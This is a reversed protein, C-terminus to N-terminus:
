LGGGGGESSPGAGGTSSGKVSSSEREDRQRKKQARQREREKEQLARQVAATVEDEGDDDEGDSVMAYQANQKMISITEKSHARAAAEASATASSASKHQQQRPARSYLEEAFRKAGDGKPVDAEHLKSLLAAPSKSSRALSVIYDVVHGESYGMLTHLQDGVWSRLLKEAM